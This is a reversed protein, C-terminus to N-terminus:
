GNDSGREPDPTDPAQAEDTESDALSTDIETQEWDITEEGAYLNSMSGDMVATAFWAMNQDYYNDPQDGWYAGDEGSNYEGMLERAFVEHAVAPDGGVLLGPLVGAYTSTAEYDAAATGDPEYSAFLQGDDEIERRPLDLGELTELARSDSFWMYDLGIRWPVRSADFSFQGSLQAVSRGSVETPLPEGTAPDLSIWDPVVGAEGGLEPSEGIEELIEYSSDALDGWPRSPDAEAFIKYAYPSYYSPNAVPQSVEGAGDGRAWDGAVVAQRYGTLDSGVTVTEQQWVDELIQLADEEYAPDDFKQAAFLLALAADTDADTATSEDLVGEGGDPQEGYQWALLDDDRVQLNEQTWNWASDFAERDELYVARLM